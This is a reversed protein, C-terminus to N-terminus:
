STCALAQPNQQMLGMVDTDILDLVRTTKITKEPNRPFNDAKVKGMCYGACEADFKADETIGPLGDAITRLQKYRKFPIHDLRAHMVARAEKPVRAVHCNRENGETELKYIRGFRKAEMVPDNKFRFVCKDKSFEAVVNKEAHKYVSIM